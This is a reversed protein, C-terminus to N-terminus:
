SSQVHHVGTQLVVDLSKNVAAGHIHSYAALGDPAAVLGVGWNWVLKEEWAVWVGLKVSFSNDQVRRIEFRTITLIFQIM